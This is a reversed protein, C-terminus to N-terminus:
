KKGPKKKSAKKGRFRDILKTLTNADPTVANFRVVGKRDIVITWPTGGTGYTHMLVSTQEGDLHADYGVPVAIKYKKVVSHYKLKHRYNRLLKYIRWTEDIEGNSSDVNFVIHHIRHHLAYRIARLIGVSFVKRGIHGM